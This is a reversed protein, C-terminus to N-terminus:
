TLSSHNGDSLGCEAAGEAVHDLRKDESKLKSEQQKAWWGFDDGVTDDADALLCEPSSALRAFSDPSTWSHQVNAEESAWLPPDSEDKMMFHGEVDTSKAEAEARAEEARLEAEAAAAAEEQARRQMKPMNSELHEFEDDRSKLHLYEENGREQAVIESNFTELTEYETSERHAFEGTEKCELHVIENQSRESEVLEQIVGDSDVTTYQV